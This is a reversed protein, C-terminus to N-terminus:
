EFLDPSNVIVADFRREPSLLNQGGGLIINKIEYKSIRPHVLEACKLFEYTQTGSRYLKSASIKKHVVNNDCDTCLYIPSIRKYSMYAVLSAPFSSNFQNKGWYYEQTYDRSSNNHTQGFLGPEAQTMDIIGTDNIEAFKIFIM